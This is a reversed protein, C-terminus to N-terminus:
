MPFWGASCGELGGDDDDNSPRAEKRSKQASMPVEGIIFDAPGEGGTGAQDPAQMTVLKPPSMPSIKAARSPESFIPRTRDDKKGKAQLLNESENNPTYVVFGYCWGDDRKKQIQILQGKQLLLIQEDNEILDYPFPPIDDEAIPRADLKDANLTIATGPGDKSTFSSIDFRDYNEGTKKADAGGAAAMNGFRGCSEVKSEVRRCPREFGTRSSIQVQRACNVTYLGDLDVIVTPDTSKDQQVQLFTSELQASLVKSYKVWIRNKKEELEPDPYIEDTSWNDRRAAEEQWYWGVRVGQSHFREEIEIYNTEEQENRFQGEGVGAARFLEKRQEASIESPEMAWDGSLFRMREFPRITRKAFAIGVVQERFDAIHSKLLLLEANRKFDKSQQLIALVIAGITLFILWYSVLTPSFIGHNGEESTTIVFAGFFVFFVVWSFSSSLANTSPNDWPAHERQFIAFGVALITGCLANQAGGKGAKSLVAVGGMMLLRRLCEKWEANYHEPTYHFFLFKLPKLVAPCEMTDHEKDYKWIEERHRDLLHWFILPVGIPGWFVMMLWSFVMMFAHGTVLTGDTHSCKLSLDAAVWSTGDPFDMCKIVRVLTLNASPLLVYLILSSWGIFDARYKDARARNVAASLYRADNLSPSYIVDNAFKWRIYLVYVVILPVTTQILAYSYLDLSGICAIPLIEFANLEAISLAKSFTKFPEPWRVGTSWAVSGIIQINTLIVKSRGTDFVASTILPFNASIYDGYISWVLIAAVFTVSTIVIFVILEGVSGECALCGEGVSYYYDDDCESCLRGFSGKQCIFSSGYEDTKNNLCEKMRTGSKYCGQAKRNVGGLCNTEALCQTAEDSSDKMPSFYGKKPMPLWAGGRCTKYQPCKSCLSGDMELQDRQYYGRDCDVQEVVVIHWHLGYGDLLERSQAWFLGAESIDVAVKITSAASFSDYSELIKQATAKVIASTCNTARLRITNARDTVIGPLSSSIMDGNNDVIFIATTDEIGEVESALYEDLTILEYDAAAAGLIESGDTNYLPAAATIGLAGNGAFIYPSSWGAGSGIAQIYWPRVTPDYHFAYTPRRFDGSDTDTHGDYTMCCGSQAKTRRKWPIEEDPQIKYAVGNYTFDCSHNRDPQWWAEGPVNLGASSTGYGVM